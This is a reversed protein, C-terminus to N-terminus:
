RGFKVVLMGALVLGVGVLRMPTISIEKLGMLGYHDIAVSAILQGAIMATLYGAAGIMPTLFVATTVFFAGLVGGTWMWWPGEALRTPSPAPTRTAAWVILMVLCGVAFNIVGGHIRAGAHSAFKANVGPQFATAIGAAIALAFGILTTALTQNM